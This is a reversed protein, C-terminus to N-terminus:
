HNSGPLCHAFTLLGPFLTLALAMTVVLGLSPVALSPCCIAWNIAARVWVLHPLLGVLAGLLGQSHSWFHPHLSSRCHYPYGKGPPGPRCGVSLAHHLLCPSGPCHDPCSCVWYPPLTCGTASVWERELTESAM